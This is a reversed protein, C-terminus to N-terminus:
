NETQQWGCNRGHGYALDFLSERDDNVPLEGDTHRTVDSRYLPVQLSAHSVPTNATVLYEYEAFPMGRCYSDALSRTM